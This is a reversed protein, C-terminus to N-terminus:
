LICYKEYEKQTVEHNCVFLDGITVTRDTIFVSSDTVAGSIICGKVSVFDELETTTAPTTNTAPEKNTSDTVPASCCPFIFCVFAVSLALVALNFFFKM